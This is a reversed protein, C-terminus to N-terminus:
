SSPLAKTAVAELAGAPLPVDFSVPDHAIKYRLNVSCANIFATTGDTTVGADEHIHGFVHAQPRIRDTIERLLDVCGARDGSSCLDGHGLPPGHTALVDTDTPISRWVEACREGRPVNFAWGCFEPQHPAGFLRM